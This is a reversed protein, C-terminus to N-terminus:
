EVDDDVRFQDTNMRTEREMDADYKRGFHTDQRIAQRFVRERIFWANKQADSYLGWGDPFEYDTTNTSM